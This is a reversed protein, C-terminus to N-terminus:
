KTPLVLHLSTLPLVYHWSIRNHQFDFMAREQSGYQKSREVVKNLFDAKVFYVVTRKPNFVMILKYQQIKAEKLVVFSVVEESEILELLKQQETKELTYEVNPLIDKLLGMGGGVREGYKFLAHAHEPFSSMLADQGVSRPVHIISYKSTLYARRGKNRIQKRLKLVNPHTRAM